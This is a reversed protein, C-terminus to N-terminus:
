FPFSKINEKIGKSFHNSANVGAASQLLCIIKVRSSPAIPLKIFTEVCISPLTKRTSLGKTTYDNARSGAPRNDSSLPYVTCVLDWCAARSPGTAKGLFSFLHCLIMNALHCNYLTCYNGMVIRM